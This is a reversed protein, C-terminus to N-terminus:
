ESFRYKFLTWLAIFGDKARIKKGEDYNRGYYSIPVEYIRKKRKLLKATFEPEIDFGNSKLNIENLVETKFMKYCTEMDTLISDYFINTIFNLIKNAAYNWFLFARHTGLFRSGYVADADAHLLPRLLLMYENPDYELDADQWITFDGRLHPIGARVASGKGENKKKYIIKISRHTKKIRKLIDATGDTSCDDVIIIQKKIGPTKAKLVKNIIKEITNKENYVPILISLIKIKKEPTGM